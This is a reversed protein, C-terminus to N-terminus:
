AQNMHVAETVDVDKSKKVSGLYERTDRYLRGDQWDAHPELLLKGVIWIVSEESPFIRLARDKNCDVL